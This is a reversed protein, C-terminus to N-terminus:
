TKLTQALTANFLQSLSLGAHGAQKPLISEASLGPVTNIEILVPGRQPHLIFDIRVLGHLGLLRYVEESIEMIRRYHDASIRAPTVEESLGSYKSEYDFFENKPVIDTVALAQPAGTHDSVGCGAETGPVMGEILVRSDIARATEIAPILEPAAKVKSIGISSGSRSPKVFCPLGVKELLAETNISQAYPLFVAQPTAIGYRALLVNCEGKSFTLASELTGSGTQPIGLMDLYGALMGDEGPSGHLTNFVADFRIHEGQLTFSFDDRNVPLRQEGAWVEWRDRHILVRFVRYRHPDLHEHVVQASQLSVEYEASFGGMVVAINPRSASM